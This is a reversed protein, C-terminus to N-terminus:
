LSRRQMTLSSTITDIMKVIIYLAIASYIGTEFNKNAVGSFNCSYRRDYKFM